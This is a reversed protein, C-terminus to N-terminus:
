AGLQVPGATAWEAPASTIATATNADGVVVVPANPSLAVFLRTPANLFEEGGEAYTPIVDFATATTHLVTRAAGSSDDKRLESTGTTTNSGTVVTRTGGLWTYGSTIVGALPTPTTLVAGSERRITGSWYSINQATVLHAPGLDAHNPNGTLGAQGFPIEATIGKFAM